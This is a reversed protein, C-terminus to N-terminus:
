AAPGERPPRRDSPKQRSPQRALCCGGPWAHVGRAQGRSVGSLGRAVSRRNANMWTSTLRVKTLSLGFEVRDFPGHSALRGASAFCETAPSLRPIRSAACRPNMTAHDTRDFAVCRAPRAHRGGWPRSRPQSLRSRPVSDAREPVRTSQSRPPAGLGLAESTRSPTMRGDSGTTCMSRRLRSLLPVEGMAVPRTWELEASWRSTDM